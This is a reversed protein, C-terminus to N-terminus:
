VFPMSTASMAETLENEMSRPLEADTPRYHLVAQYLQITTTTALELINQTCNAAFRFFLEPTITRHITHVIRYKRDFHVPSPFIYNM